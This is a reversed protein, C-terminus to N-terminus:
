QEKFVEQLKELAVRAIQRVRERSVGLERGIWKLTKDQARQRLIYEERSTLVGQERACALIENADIRADAEEAEVEYTAAAPCLNEPSENISMVQRARQRHEAYKIRSAENTDPARVISWNASLYRLMRCRASVCVYTSFENRRAPDFYDACACLAALGEQVLDELEIGPPRTLRKAMMWVLPENHAVLENRTAPLGAILEANKEADTEKKVKARVATLVM